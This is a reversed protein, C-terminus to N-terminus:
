QCREYKGPHCFRSSCARHRATYDCDDLAMQLNAIMTAFLADHHEFNYGMGHM